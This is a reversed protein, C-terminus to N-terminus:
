AQPSTVVVRALLGAPADSVSLTNISGLTGLTMLLALAFAAFRANATTNM